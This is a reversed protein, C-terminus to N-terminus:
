SKSALWRIANYIAQHGITAHNEAPLYDFYFRTEKPLKAKIKEALLNVDVEMVHPEECPALGEKGVALYVNAKLQSLESVERKLISGNDWWISPSVIIYNDFLSPKTMMVETALLGALSQGILYSPGSIQYREKVLAIVEKELFDIFRASGGSTPFKNKENIVRTPFTMDRKRDTNVIGVVIVPPLHQIWPFNAYQVLGTTHVFDEDLGGDLLYVVGYKKAEEKNFEAPLYINIQRSEAMIKSDIRLSEGITIPTSEQVVNQAKVCFALLMFVWVLGSKCQMM